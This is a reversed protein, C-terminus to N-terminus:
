KIQYNPTTTQNTNNFTTTGHASHNKLTTETLHQGISRTGIPTKFRVILQKYIELGIEHQHQTCLTAAAATATVILVHNLNHDLQIWKEAEQQTAAAGKLEAEALRTTSAAARPLFQTYHEWM